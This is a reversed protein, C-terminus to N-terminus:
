FCFVEAASKMEEQLIQEIFGVIGTNRLSCEEVASFDWSSSAPDALFLVSTFNPARQTGRPSAGRVGAYQFNQSSKCHLGQIGQTSVTMGLSIYGCSVDREKKKKFIKNM